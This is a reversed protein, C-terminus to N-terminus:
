KPDVPSSEDEFIEQALEASLALYGCGDTYNDQHKPSTKMRAVKMLNMMIGVKYAPIEIGLYTSWFESIVKFNNEPSGYQNQRDQNICFKAEDLTKNRILEKAEKKCNLKVLM